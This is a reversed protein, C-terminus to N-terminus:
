GEGTQRRFLEGGCYACEFNRTEQQPAGCTRCELTVQRQWQQSRAGPSMSATATVNAFISGLRGGGGPAGPAAEDEPASARRYRELEMEALRDLRMGLARVVDRPVGQGRKLQGLHARAQGVLAELALAVQEAPVPTSGGTVDPLGYHSAVAAWGESRAGLANGVVYEVHETLHQAFTSLATTSAM